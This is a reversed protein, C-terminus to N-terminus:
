MVCFIPFLVVMFCVCLAERTTWHNLIWGAICLVGTWDRTRSSGVHRPVVLGMCSLEQPVVVGSATSWLGRTAVVSGVCQLKQLELMGCGPCQLLLRWWLSFGMGQFSSYGQKGCSSFALACCHLGVVVLIFFYSCMTSLGKSQLSIWGTWGLPCWDQTNKPLFSALASVGPSQGGWSFLQSM